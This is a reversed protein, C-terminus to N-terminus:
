SIKWSPLAARHTRLLQTTQSSWWIIYENFYIQRRFPMLNPPPPSIFLLVTFLKSDKMKKRYYSMRAVCLREPSFFSPAKKGVTFEKGERPPGKLSCHPSLSCWLPSAARTPLCMNPWCWTCINRVEPGFYIKTTRSSNFSPPAQKKLSPAKIVLFLWKEVWDGRPSSPVLYM